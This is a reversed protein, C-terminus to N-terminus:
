QTEGGATSEMWRALGGCISRSGRGSTGRRNTSNRRRNREFRGCLAPSNEWIRGACRSRGGCEPARYRCGRPKQRGGLAAPTRRISRGGCAPTRHRCGRRRQRGCPALPTEGSDNRANPDAGADLLAAVVPLTEKATKVAWHLPTEESDDQANPDAGVNLLAIVTAADNGDVALHLPTCGAHDKTSPRRLLAPSTRGRRMLERLGGVVAKAADLAEEITQRGPKMRANPVTGPPGMVAPRREPAGGPLRRHLSPPPGKKPGHVWGVVGGVVAAAVFGIYHFLNWSEWILFYILAALAGGLAATLLRLKDRWFNTAECICGVGLGLIAGFLGVSAYVLWTPTTEM